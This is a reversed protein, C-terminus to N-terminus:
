TAAQEGLSKIRNITATMENKPNLGAMMRMMMSGMPGMPTTMKLVVHTAGNGTRELELTGKMAMGMAMMMSPGAKWRLRQGKTAETVRVKGGMKGLRVSFETGVRVPVGVKEEIGRVPTLWETWRNPDEILSSWIADGTARVTTERTIAM